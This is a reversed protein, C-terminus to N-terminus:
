GRDRSGSATLGIAVFRAIWLVAFMGLLFWGLPPLELRMFAGWLAMPFVGIGFLFLGVILGFWGFTGFTVACSLLWLTLGFLYSSFMVLVGIGARWPRVILALLVAAVDLALVGVAIPGLFQYAGMAWEIITERL